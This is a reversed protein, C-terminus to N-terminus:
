GRRLRMATPAAPTFQSRYCALAARKREYYASVDVVFSPAVSDNIFYYCVWDPRWAEGDAEIAACGAAHVGRSTLM